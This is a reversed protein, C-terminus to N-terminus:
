MRLPSWDSVSGLWISPSSNSRTALKTITWASPRPKVTLHSVLTNNTYGLWVRGLSFRNCIFQFQHCAATVMSTLSTRHFRVTPRQPRELPIHHSSKSFRSPVRLELRRPKTLLQSALPKVPLVNPLWRNKNGHKRKEWRISIAHKHGSCHWLLGFSFCAHLHSVASSWCTDVSAVLIHSCRRLSSFNSFHRPTLIHQFIHQAIFFQKGNEKESTM